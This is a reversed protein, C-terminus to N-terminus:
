ESEPLLSLRMAAPLPPLSFSQEDYIWQAQDNYIDIARGDSATLNLSLPLGSKEDFRRYTLDLLRGDDEQLTAARVTQGQLDFTISPWPRQPRPLMLLLLGQNSSAIVQGHIKLEEPDLWFPPQSSLIMFIRAPDLEMGLLRALNAPSAPGLYAQNDDFFIALLQRGDCNLSFVRKEFPGFMDLRFQGQANILLSHEASIRQDPLQLDIDGQM